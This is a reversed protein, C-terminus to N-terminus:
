EGERCVGSHFFIPHLYRCQTDSTMTLQRGAAAPEWAMYWIFRAVECDAAPQLQCMAYVMADIMM